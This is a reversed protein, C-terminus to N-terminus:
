SGLKEIDKKSESILKSNDQDIRRLINKSNSEKISEEINSLRQLVVKSLEEFRKEVMNNIHFEIPPVSEIPSVVYDNKYKGKGTLLWIPDINNITDIIAFLITQNPKKTGTVVTSVLQQSVGILESFQRQNLGTEKFVQIIRNAREIDKNKM